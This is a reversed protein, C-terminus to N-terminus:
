GQEDQSSRLEAVFQPDIEPKWEREMLDSVAQRPSKGAFLIQHVQKTIPMEVGLEQALDRAARTTEVGEVTMQTERLIEDITHGQGLMVGAKFNRSKDSTCTLLVDGMGSLGTFTLPNAGLEVGLRTLETLGRTILAAQSNRGLGLGEAIGAGLALVNKLTGGLEVGVPDRNTYPRFYRNAFLKQIYLATPHHFSAIVTSTPQRKVVEVAFNPGSLVAMRERMQRGLVEELVQSMRLHNEAELGKTASVLYHSPKVWPATRRAVERFGRSAPVLLLVRSEKAAKKLDHSARLSDSQETEGLYRENRRNENIDRVVARRHSWLTVDHGNDDLVMGLATGWIGAPIVAISTTAPRGESREM